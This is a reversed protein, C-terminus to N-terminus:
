RSGADVRVVEAIGNRADCRVERWVTQRQIEPAFADLTGAGHPAFRAHFRRLFCAEVVLRAVEVPVEALPEPALLEADTLALEEDLEGVKDLAEVRQGGHATGLLQQRM